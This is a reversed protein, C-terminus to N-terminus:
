RRSRRLRTRLRSLKRVAQILEDPLPHDVRQGRRFAGRLRRRNAALIGAATRDDRKRANADKTLRTEQRYAGADGNGGNGRSRDKPAFAMALREFRKRGPEVIPLERLVMLESLGYNGTELKLPLGPPIPELNAAPIDVYEGSDVKATSNVQSEVRDPQVTRESHDALFIRHMSVRDSPGFLITRSQSIITSGFQQWRVSPPTELYRFRFPLYLVLSAGELDDPWKCGVRVSVQQPATKPCVIHKDISEGPVVDLVGSATIQWDSWKRYLQFSYQGPNLLGFDAVGAENSQRNIGSSSQDSMKTLMVSVEHAPPGNTSEETFSLKVPNWDLSRPHQIAETMERLQKLMEQERAQAVAAQRAAQITQQWFLGVLALCAAAVLVCTGIVVLQAMIKGRMADLWLRCAVAAPDGFRELVRRRRPRQILEECFRETIRVCWTTM